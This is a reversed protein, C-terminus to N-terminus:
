LLDLREALVIDALQVNNDILWQNHRNVVQLLLLLKMSVVIILLSVINVTDGDQWALLFLAACIPIFLFWRLRLMEGIRSLLM